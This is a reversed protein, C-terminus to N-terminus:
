RGQRGQEQRGWEAWQWGAVWATAWKPADGDFWTQVGQRFPISLDGLKYAADRCVRLESVYMHASVRFLHDSKRFM